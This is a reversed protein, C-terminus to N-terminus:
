KTLRACSGRPAEQFGDGARFAQLEYTYVTIWWMTFCNPLKPDSNPDYGSELMWDLAEDFDKRAAELHGAKYNQEGAAFKEEVKRILYDKSAPVAPLLVVM